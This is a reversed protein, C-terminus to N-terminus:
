QGGSRDEDVDIARQENGSTASGSAVPVQRPQAEPRVTEFIRNMEDLPDAFRTPVM